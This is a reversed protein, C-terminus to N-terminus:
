TKMKSTKKTNEDARCILSHLLARVATVHGLETGSRHARSPGLVLRGDVAHHQLAHAGVDARQLFLVRADFLFLLLLGPEQVDM